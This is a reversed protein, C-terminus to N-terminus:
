IEVDVKIENNIKINVKVTMQNGDRSKMENKSKYIQIKIHIIM